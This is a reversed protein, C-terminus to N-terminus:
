GRGAPIFLIDTRRNRARGEATKNSAVPRNPGNGKAVIRARDVGRSVLYDVIAQARQESVRQNNEPQGQSDTNGEVRIYMGRAMEVQPLLQYNLIAMSETDLDTVATDFNITIPKTFLAAGTLAVSAEYKEKRAVLPKGSEEWAKRVIRDDRLTVPAFRDKIEAEPYNIWISDAQNYVRDFSPPSGDLGFLAVNDTMDTWRMWDLAALTKEFGLEDRFRPVKESILRAAAVKDEGQRQGAFYVDVLKRALEPTGDLFERRAVLVDAVLQTADATSFLRHAGARSQLALTVDPEWLCAIDVKGEAFLKRGFTYDEVSFLTDKRVRAIQPPTLRSNNIMFEFVTHDPSFMLMASKRGLLDEVTVVDKSAVCADGGRSWDIQLFARADVRATRFSGMNIPLEDVTSWIADVAGERLAKNKAPADEIFEIKLDLGAAAAASGRATSLGGNGLVLAMHGPWQSLAVVVQGTKRGGSVVVAREPAPGAGGMAGLRREPHTFAAAGVSGVAILVILVKATGSLKAM